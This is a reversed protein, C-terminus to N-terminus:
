TGTEGPIKYLSLGPRGRNGQSTPEQCFPGPTLLVTARKKSGTWVIFELPTLFCGLLVGRFKPSHAARNELNLGFYTFFVGM